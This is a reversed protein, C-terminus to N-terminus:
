SHIPSFVHKLRIQLCLELFSVGDTVAYLDRNVSKNQTDVLQVLAVLVFFFGNFCCQNENRSKKIIEVM